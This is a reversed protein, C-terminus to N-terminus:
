SCTGSQGIRAILGDLEEQDLDADPFDTPAFGGVPASQCFQIMTQVADIFRDALREIVDPRHIEASYTWHVRLRGDAFYANIELM